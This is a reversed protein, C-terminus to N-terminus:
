GPSRCRSPPPHPGPPPSGETRPARRGRHPTVSCRGGRPAGLRASGGRTWAHGRAGREKRGHTTPHGSRLPETCRDEGLEHPGRRPGLLPRSAPSPTIRAGPVSDPHGRRPTRPATHTDSCGPQGRHAARVSPLQQAPEGGRGGGWRRRAPPQPAPPLHRHHRSRAPTVNAQFHRSCVFFRAPPPSSRGLQVHARRPPPCPTSPGEAAQPGPWWGAAVM